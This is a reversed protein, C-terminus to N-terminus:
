FDMKFNVGLQRPDGFRTYLTPPFDPPENGFFFGRVVYDKDFINRAWLQVSWNDAEYGIRAHALEYGRSQEDHSV